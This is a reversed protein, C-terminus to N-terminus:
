EDSVRRASGGVEELLFVEILLWAPRRSILYVPGACTGAWAPWTRRTALLEAAVRYLPSKGISMLLVGLQRTENIRM